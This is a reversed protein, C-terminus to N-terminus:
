FCVQIRLQAKLRVAEDQSGKALEQLQAMEKEKDENAIEALTKAETLEDETAQKDALIAARELDGDALAKNHETDARRKMRKMQTEALHEAKERVMSSRWQSLGATQDRRQWRKRVYYLQAAGDKLRQAALHEKFEKRVAQLSIVTARFVASHWNHLYSKRHEKTHAALVRALLKIGSSRYREMNKRAADREASVVVVQDEVETITLNHRWANVANLQTSRQLEHVEAYLILSRMLANRGARAQHGSGDKWSDLEAKVKKLEAQVARLKALWMKESTCRGAMTHVATAKTVLEIRRCVGDLLRMALKRNAEELMGPHLIHSESATDRMEPFATCGVDYFVKPQEISDAGHIHISRCLPVAAVRSLNLREKQAVRVAKRLAECRARLEALTSSKRIIEGIAQPCM